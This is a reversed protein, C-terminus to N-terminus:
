CKLTFWAGTMTGGLVWMVTNVILWACLVIVVGIICMTLYGKAKTMMGPDGASIIYIIGSIFIGVGALIFLISMGWKMLVYFMQFFDCLTCADKPDSSNGCPILGSGKVSNSTASTAGAPAATSSSTANSDTNATNNTITAKTPSLAQSTQDSNLNTESNINAAPTTVPTTAPTAVGTNATSSCEGAATSRECRDACAKNKIADTLVGGNLFVEAIKPAKCGPCTCTINTGNVSANCINANILFFLSIAITAVCSIFIKKDLKKNIIKMTM